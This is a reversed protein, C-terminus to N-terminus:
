FMSFKEPVYVSDFPKLMFLDAGSGDMMKQLNVVFKQSRGGEQRVVVVKKLNARMKDFGGAEMIADFATIRREVQIKGPRLVAGTVYVVFPSSLLTVTVEKSVLKPAYLELLEKNLGETSKGVVAYEGIIPLVILGDQRVQQTTDMSPVGPFGIKVADGPKLTLADSDAAVSSSTAGTAAAPTPPEASGEGQCGANLLVHGSIALVTVTVRALHKFSMSLTSEFWRGIPSDM